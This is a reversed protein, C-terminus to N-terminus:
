TALPIAFLFYFRTTLVNNIVERVQEFSWLFALLTVVIVCCPHLFTYVRVYVLQEICGWDFEYGVLRTHERATVVLLHVGIRPILALRRLRFEVAALAHTSPLRIEEWCLVIPHKTHLASTSM